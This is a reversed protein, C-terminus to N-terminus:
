KLNQLEKSFRENLMQLMKQGMEFERQCEIMAVMDRIPASNSTELYGNVTSFKNEEMPAVKLQEKPDLAFYNATLRKLKKKDPIDVISLTGVDKWAYQADNGQRVRVIGDSTVQIANINDSIDFQIASGEGSVTYGDSTILTNDKSLHFAGNRTYLKKNDPTMVEFFGEGQIAFDLKRGTERLGGQSFDILVEGQGTGLLQERADQRGLKEQLTKSFGGSAVFERKYAPINAAALNKAIVEQRRQELTMGSLTSYTAEM